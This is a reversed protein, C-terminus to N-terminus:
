KWRPKFDLSPNKCHEKLNVQCKIWKYLKRNEHHELAFMITPWDLSASDIHHSLWLFDYITCTSLWSYNTYDLRITTLGTLDFIKEILPRSIFSLHAFVAHGEQKDIIHPAFDLLFLAKESKQPTGGSMMQSFWSRLKTTRYPDQWNISKLPGQLLWRCVELKSVDRSFHHTFIIIWQSETLFSTNLTTTIFELSEISAQPTVLCAGTLYQDFNTTFYHWTNQHFSRFMDVNAVTDQVIAVVKDLNTNLYKLIVPKYLNKWKFDIVIFNFMEVNCAKCTDQIVAFIEQETPQPLHPLVFKKAFGPKLKGIYYYYERKPWIQNGYHRILNHSNNEMMVDSFFESNEAIGLNKFAWSVLSVSDRQVFTIFALEWQTWDQAFANMEEGQVVRKAALSTINDTIPVNFAKMLKAATAFNRTNIAHLIVTEDVLFIDTETLKMIIDYAGKSALLQLTRGTVNFAVPLDDYDPNNMHETDFSLKRRKVDNKFRLLSLWTAFKYDHRALATAYLNNNEWFVRSVNKIIWIVAKINGQAYESDITNLIYNYTTNSAYYDDFLTAYKFGAFILVKSRIEVPLKQFLYNM